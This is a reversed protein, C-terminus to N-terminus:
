GTGLITRSCEIIEDMSVMSIGIMNPNEIQLFALPFRDITKNLCHKLQFFLLLLFFLKPLAVIVKLSLFSFMIFITEFLSFLHSLVLYKYITSTSRLFDRTKRDNSLGM